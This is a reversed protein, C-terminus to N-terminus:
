LRGGAIKRTGEVLARGVASQLAGPTAAEEITRGGAMLVVRDAFGPLIRLDHTIFLLGLGDRALARFTQLLEQQVAADLGTTCEDALLFRSQRALALAIAVRQAMGGSLTHPWADAVAEPATFGARRLWPLPDGPQRALALCREVHRGVRWRPDLAGAADQPILGIVEGRIPLFDAEQTPQYVQAGVEYRLAGGVRGPKFPLLGLLARATLSKGSGSPGVLAVVEGAGVDFSADEILVTRAAQVRLGRIHLGPGSSM